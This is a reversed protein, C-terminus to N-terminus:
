ESFSLNCKFVLDWPVLPSFANYNNVELWDSIASYICNMLDTLEEDLNYEKPDVNEEVLGGKLNMVKQYVKEQLYIWPVPNGEGSENTPWEFDEASINYKAFYENKISESVKSYLEQVKEEPIGFAAAAAYTENEEESVEPEVPQQEDAVDQEQKDAPQNDSAETKKPDEQDGADEDKGGCGAALACVMILVLFLTFIRRKKM